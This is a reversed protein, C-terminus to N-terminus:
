KVGSISRVIFEVREEITCLPVEIMEYGYKEYTEIVSKHVLECTSFPEWRGDDQKYIAEWPPFIFVKKNYPYKEPNMTVDMNKKGADIYALVDIVSRDYFVPGKIMEAEQYQQSRLKWIAKSFSILNRWPDEGGTGYGTEDWYERSVEKMVAYGINELASVTSSKGTGPAGTLVIRQLDTKDKILLTGKM